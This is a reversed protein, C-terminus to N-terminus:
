AVAGERKKTSHKVLPSSRFARTGGWQKTAAALLESAAAADGACLAITHAQGFARLTPRNAVNVRALELATACDNGSGAFFEAGHDVFALQHRALLSEFGSQAAKIHAEAAATKGQLAMVDALRWRVEPDGSAVAPVLLIEADSTRGITSYIEALHVRAKTYSPLCDIAKQYWQAARATQPEAVLEGWLMGLQFYVWAVPFPSVDRYNQLAERYIGDAATFERLDALLSGLAVLDEIRGSKGAMERREDMVKDLNAGCAQDISLRLRNVDALPAGGLEARTLYQRADAFRHTMSAVQAQVLAVRSSTPDDAQVLQDVLSELRDLASFDSLFQVTLQEHEVVTEAAGEHLPDQLFRSWSRRRASELNIVAIEGDTTPLDFESAELM